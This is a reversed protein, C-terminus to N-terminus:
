VYKGAATPHSKANGPDHAYRQACATSLGLYRALDDVNRTEALFDWLKRQPEDLGPPAQAPGQPAIAEPESRTSFLPALTQLDDLLDRAHRILKVGDRLLKLTGASATSDVPGPIAFVERGQEAAHRATILAGSKENAEVLVIARCM